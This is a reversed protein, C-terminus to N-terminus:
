TGGDPPTYSISVIGGDLITFVARGGGGIHITEGNYLTVQNKPLNPSSPPNSPDAIPLFVPGDIGGDRYAAPITGSVYDTTQTATVLARNQVKVAFPKAAIANLKAIEAAESVTPAKGATFYIIRKTAAMASLAIAMAVVPILFFPIRRIASKTRKM